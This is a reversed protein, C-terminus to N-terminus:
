APHAGGVIGRQTTPTRRGGRSKIGGSLALEADSGRPRGSGTWKGAPDAVPSQHSEPREPPCDQCPNDVSSVARSIGRNSVWSSLPAGRGSILLSPCFHQPWRVPHLQVAKLM